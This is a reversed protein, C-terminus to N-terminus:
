GWLEAIPGTCLQADGITALPVGYAHALSLLLDNHPRHDFSLFRGMEFGAGGGALLFPMNQHSHTNGQALESCWVVTTHDLLTGDGEPVAALGDLLRRFQEAYWTQRVAWAERAEGDAAGAHSLQHDDQFSNLHVFRINNAGSSMQLTIVRTQDCALAAVAMDVQLPALQGMNNEDNPNLAPPQDPTACQSAAADLRRELDRVLDAHADLRARDDAAVNRRARDFQQRVADLVSRRERLRAALAPDAPNAESFLRGYVARPSEEPQLPNAPGAYCIRHRVESGTIRLGLELSAFRTSRGIERAILQDVSTGDSWGALTGDGGVFNGPQLHSGTLLAGMGAQHPEGPGLGASALDIGETMIVRHSLNRLPTLVRGLTFDRETSGAAPFWVEPNFGNPTFFFVLRRPFAAEPRGQARALSSLLPLGLVAGAGCRLFNRRDIGLNQSARSM